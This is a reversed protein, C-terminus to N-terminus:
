NAIRLAAPGGPCPVRIETPKLRDNELKFFAIEHDGNCGVAVFRSDPTFSVAQPNRGTRAVDMTVFVGNQKQLLVLMGGARRGLKKPKWYSNDLCSAVLWNGDPSIDLGEPM